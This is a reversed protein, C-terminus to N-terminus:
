DFDDDEVVDDDDDVDPLLERQAIRNLRYRIVREEGVSKVGPFHMALAPLVLGDRFLPDSGDPQRVKGRVLYILLLPATFKDRCADDAVKAPDQGDADAVLQQFAPVSLGHRVDRRSGLRSSRGSVMLAGISQDVRVRRLQTPVAGIPVPLSIPDGLGASLLAVTWRSLRSNPDAKDMLADAISDGQFDHNLPHVLFLRLLGAVEEGPVDHWLIASGHPSEIRGSRNAIFNRVSEFNKDNRQRDSYLRTTEVMRGDLSVERVVEEVDMGTAMKNRATIMLTDPHRRVRLGFERPAAGLAHMRRFDRRLEATASSIHRYWGEAEETLWIRCLDEYGDRYGFWRGMQMLTDYTRSNRLFYSVSLGELTLGRSLSNGGVAIVRLGPHDDVLSYDLSAAGTSQNVPQVAIPSIADHLVALVRKWSKGAYSFEAEFVNRLFSIMESSVEAVDPDLAGYAKVENRIEGLANQIIGAIDNQIATFRTVNILMSRHIGGGHGPDGDAARLDRIATSLLFTAIAWTLSDPLGEVQFDRRHVLPLWEDTDEISRLIAASATDPDPDPHDGDTGAFLLNMGVYNSPPELVHIFDAPFLDSGLMEDTTDPDIFINAFPTATFGVYTARHFVTLLDRIGQNIATTEDPNKRTNVSANDAEDDILLMPHDIRGSHDGSRSKLWLTLNRLVSKNKKCVVLIPENVNDLSINLSEVVASRFDYNRSTFVIGDRKQNLLGVGVHAKRGIGRKTLWGGSEIGIFGEDLRQQTQRRVNELMGTLLIIMRYGADAAKSILATYTATKGSQVDGMVLGRRRWVSANEPNGLLDLLDDTTRDLTGVVPPPWGRKLLLQRYRKWYYWEIDGRRNALWPTHGDDELTRGLDMVVRYRSHLERRAEEIGDPDVQIVQAFAQLKADIDAEAPPPDLPLAAAVVDILQQISM